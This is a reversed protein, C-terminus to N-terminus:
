TRTLDHICLNNKLYDTPIKHHFAFHYTMSFIRVNAKKPSFFFGHLIVLTHWLENAWTTLIKLFLMVQVTPSVNPHAAGSIISRFMCKSVNTYLTSKTFLFIELIHEQRSDKLKSMCRQFNISQLLNYTEPIYHLNPQREEWIPLHFNPPRSLDKANHM